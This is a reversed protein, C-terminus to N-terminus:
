RAKFKSGMLEALVSLTFPVTFVIVVTLAFYNFASDDYALPSM